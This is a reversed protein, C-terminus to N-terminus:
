TDYTELMLSHVELINDKLEDWTKGQTYSHLEDCKALYWGDECEEILYEYCELNIVPPEKDERISSFANGKSILYKHPITELHNM